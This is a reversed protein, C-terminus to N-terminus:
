QKKLIKIIGEMFERQNNLMQEIRDDNKQTQMVLLKYMGYFFALVSLLIPLELIKDFNEKIFDM